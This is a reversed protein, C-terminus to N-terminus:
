MGGVRLLVIMVLMLWVLMGTDAPLVSSLKLKIEQVEYSEVDIDVKSDKYMATHGILLKKKVESESMKADRLVYYSGGPNMGGCVVGTIGTLAVGEVFHIAEGVGLCKARLPTKFKVFRPKGDQLIMNYTIM